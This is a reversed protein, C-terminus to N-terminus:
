THSAIITIQDPGLSYQEVVDGGIKPTALGNNFVPAGTIIRAEDWLNADVFQQITHAGGEIIISQINHAYGWDLIQPVLPQNFDLKVWQRHASQAEKEENFVTIQADDKYLEATEAVILKRDILLRHPSKGKVRRVTLSPNDILATRTGILIADECSRWTHTLYQTDPATIWNVGRDDPKRERDMFGNASQAAKLIIYPRKKEHFTFFRRNLWTGAEQECGITVEVGANRLLAIGKGAVEAFPDRNAIVVRPIKNQIILPACPPTKGFHSCPELNVYLTANKLRETDAVAKIANVEAHAEGFKQHYGEGIITGGEVIVCGVLPNPSVKGCGNRALELCRHM